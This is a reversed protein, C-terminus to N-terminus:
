LTFEFCEDPVTIVRLIAPASKKKDAVLDVVTDYVQQLTGIEDILGVELAQTALLVKAELNRITEVPIDRLRSINECFIDFTLNLREQIVQADEPDIIGKALYHPRKFRGATFTIAPNKKPLESVVGISGILATEPAIIHSCAAAVWYAGSTGSGSIFAIVPKIDRAWLIFDAIIQSNGPSGGPSDIQLVICDISPDDTYKKLFKVTENFDDIPKILPIYGITIATQEDPQKKVMKIEGQLAFIVACLLFHYRM